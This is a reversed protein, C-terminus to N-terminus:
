HKRRMGLFDYAKLLFEITLRKEQEMFDTGLLAEIKELRHYLTQRVIYLKKATDKKSGNCSLYAELTELLKGNYKSDHDIIKGLYEEVLDPLNMQRHMESIIRYIHLNEYFCVLNQDSFRERIRLTELATQYSIHIQDMDELYKGISILPLDKEKLTWGASFLKDFGEEMRKKWTEKNREDFLLLTMINKKEMALFRIGRQEFISRFYLKFYTLNPIEKPFKLLCAVSGKPKISDMNSSLYEQITGERQNGEIWRMISETEETRRKEAVYWERIFFQALATATRDLILHDYETLIRDDSSIVLEAYTEGLLDIPKIAMTHGNDNTEDTYFQQRKQLLTQKDAKTRDPQLLVNKDQFILMVQVQLSQQIFSLIEDPYEITLLKKNLTQSYHELSSIMQHQRNILFTHIDQTIEVFSVEQRFLIIPFHNENAIRIAEEPITSTYTGIEICLGAANAEILQKIMSIFVDENKAWAVCTSLILEDGKLLNRINTVEVIHVWKVVRNLGEIGAIIDINHFLERKLIDSVSSYANM